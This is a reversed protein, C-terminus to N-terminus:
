RTRRKRDLLQGETREVFFIQAAHVAGKRRGQFHLEAHMDATHNSLLKEFGIGDCEIENAHDDHYSILSHGRLWAERSYCNTELSPANVPISALRLLALRDAPMHGASTGRSGGISIKLQWTRVVAGVSARGPMTAATGARSSFM